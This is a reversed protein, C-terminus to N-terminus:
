MGRRRVHVCNFNVICGTCDPSGCTDPSGCIDDGGTDGVCTGGTVVTDGGFADCNHNSDIYRHRFPADLIADIPSAAAESSASQCGTGTTFDSVTEVATVCGTATVQNGSIAYDVNLSLDPGHGNFERDGRTHALPWVNITPITLCQVCAPDEDVTGDCNDDVGNCDEGM